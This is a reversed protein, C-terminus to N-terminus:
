VTLRVNKSAALERLAERERDAVDNGSLDLTELQLAHPSCLLARMGAEEVFNNRLTLHRVSQLVSSESLLRAGEDLLLNRSFDIAELRLASAVRPLEHLWAGRVGTEILKLCRLGTLCTSQMLHLVIDGDMVTKSVHLHRLNTLHASEVLSWWAEGIEADVVTLRTLRASEPSAIIAMLDTSGSSGRGFIEISRVIRALSSFGAESYLEHGSVPAVRLRDDWSSLEQEALKLSSSKSEGDPWLVFLECLVLWTQPSPDAQLVDRLLDRWEVNTMRELFARPRYALLLNFPM